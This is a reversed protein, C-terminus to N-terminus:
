MKNTKNNYAEIRKKCKRCRFVYLRGENETAMKEWTSMPAGCNECFVNGVDSTYAGKFTIM